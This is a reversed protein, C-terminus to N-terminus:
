YYLGHEDEYEQEVDNIFEEIEEETLLGTLKERADEEFKETSRYRRRMYDERLAKEQAKAIDDISPMYEWQKTKPDYREVTGDDNYRLNKAESNRKSKVIEGTSPDATYWLGDLEFDGTRLSGDENLYYNKGDLSLWSTQMIGEENFYYWKGSIYQWGTCVKGSDDAYYWAWRYYQWGTLMYGNSDFIYYYGDILKMGNKAYGGDDYQYWWGNTDQSWAAMATGSTGLTLAATVMIIVMRKRM